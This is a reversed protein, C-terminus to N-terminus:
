RSVDDLRLLTLIRRAAASPTVLRLETGSARAARLSHVLVAVAAVLVVRTPTSLIRDLTASLDGITAVDLEGRVVMIQTSCSGFTWIEYPESRVAEDSCDNM